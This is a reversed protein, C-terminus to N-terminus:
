SNGSRGMLMAGQDFLPTVAAAEHSVTSNPDSVISRQTKSGQQEYGGHHKNTIHSVLKGIFIQHTTGGETAGIGKACTARYVLYVNSNGHRQHTVKNNPDEAGHRSVPQMVAIRVKCIGTNAMELGTSAEADPGAAHFFGHALPLLLKGNFDILQSVGQVRPHLLAAQKDIHAFLHMFM